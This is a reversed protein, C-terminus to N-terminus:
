GHKGNYRVLEMASIKNASDLTSTCALIEVKDFIKSVDAYGCPRQWKQNVFIGIV